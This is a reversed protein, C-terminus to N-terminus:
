QTKFAPFPVFCILAILQLKVSNVVFLAQTGTSILPTQIHAHVLVGHAGANILTNVSKVAIANETLMTKSCMKM